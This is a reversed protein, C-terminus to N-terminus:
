VYTGTITVDGDSTTTTRFLAITDTNILTLPNLSTFSVFAGGNISVTITGSGGDDSIGTYTGAFLVGVTKTETTDDTANWDFQWILDKASANCIINEM